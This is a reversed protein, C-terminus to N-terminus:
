AAQRVASQNVAAIIWARATKVDVGKDFALLSAIEHLTPGPVEVYQPSPKAALEPPAETYARATANADQVIEAATAAKQAEQEQQATVTAATKAAEEAAARDAAAQEAAIRATEIAALRAKEAAAEAEVKAAIRADEETIRGKVIAVFSDSDKHLLAALDPFLHIHHRCNHFSRQNMRIAQAQADALIKVRALETDVADHLSALTRKNKIVGAFDPEIGKITAPDIEANLATLHDSFALRGARVIEAKISEKKDKVLKTLTLRKTRMDGQIKDLTRMLLDIDVTQAIAAKKAQDIQKEADDLFKTAAEADAFDQDSELDENISAVYQEAAIKFEPLNSLAVEGRIQISLAPLAIIAEAKPKEAHEVPVFSELDKHFQIWGAEIREIWVPDPKVIAYTMNEETGDSVVFILSTAGTVHMIQQCQPLHEDPVTGNRVTEYLWESYQKHEFAITGILNLGDCSASMRGYSMTVPYLDDGIIKEVIPRAKAEVRHGHDLIRSQVFESFEKPLGSHKVRLLETRSVNQSLGLMAAAESAGDHDTRFLAWEDSGQELDHVIRDM